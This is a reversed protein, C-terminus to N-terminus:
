RPEVTQLNNIRRLYFTIESLSRTFLYEESDSHFGWPLGIRILGCFPVVVATFDDKGKCKMLSRLCASLKDLSCVSRSQVDIVPHGPNRTARTPIAGYRHEPLCGQKRWLPKSASDGPRGGGRRLLSVGKAASFGDWVRWFPFSEEEASEALRHNLHCSRSGM